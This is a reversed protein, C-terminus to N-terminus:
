TVNLEGFEKDIRRSYVGEASHDEALRGATSSTVRGWKYFLSFSGDM